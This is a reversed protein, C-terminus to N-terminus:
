VSAGVCRATERVVNLAICDGCRCTTLERSSEKVVRPGYESQRFTAENINTNELDVLAVRPFWLSLLREAREQIWPRTRYYLGPLTM